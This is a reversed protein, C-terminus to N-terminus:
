SFYEGDSCADPIEHLTCRVQRSENAGVVSVAASLITYGGCTDHTRTGHELEGETYDQEHIGTYTM